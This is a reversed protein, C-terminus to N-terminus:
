ILMHCHPAGRTQSEIRAVPLSSTAKDSRPPNKKEDDDSESDDFYQCNDESEDNSSMLAAIANKAIRPELFHFLETLASSKYNGKDMEKTAEDWKRQDWKRQFTRDKVSREPTSPTGCHENPSISTAKSKISM